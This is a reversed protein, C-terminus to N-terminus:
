DPHYELEVDGITITDGPHAGMRRLARYLGLDRLSQDLHRVAEENDFDTMRVARVVRQGGVQWGDSHSEIVFPAEFVYERSDGDDVDNLDRGAREAERARELTTWVTELLEPVGEGTAGSLPLCGPFRQALTAFREVYETVDTKNFAVVRPRQALDEDYAALEEELTALTEAPDDDGLDVLFVLVRTRAIHRLFDHGLGKGAAAGEIIGPIDAMTFTRYGSLEVVGLNPVITTFPYDAIKPRAASVTALLTSKGANPLGVLGVEALLRLELILKREQGPEGKEAFGPTQRTSTTFRANGRGGQGGRAAVFRAGEEVLDAIVEQTEADRVLTGPPVLVVLPEGKKGHRDSGMGHVGRGAKWHPRYRLDLLTNLRSTAELVVDGGDGGDGGNPGGHPVYKERRFSVCGNGGAGGICHIKAQDVFM